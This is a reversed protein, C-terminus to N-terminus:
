KAMVLVSGDYSNALAVGVVRERLESTMESRSVGFVKGDKAVCYQGKKVSGECLVPVRGTLAIYQWGGQPLCNMRVAPDTSVIGAIIGDTFKTLEFETGNDTEEEIFQLVTGCPYDKDTHYKEALDAAKAYLATGQFNTAYVNAYYHSGDGINGHGSNIGGSTPNYVNQTNIGGNAYIRNTVTLASRCTVDGTLTSTGNVNLTTGVNTTATSKVDKGTITNSCTLNGSATVTALKSTGTSTINTSTTTNSVNANTFKNTTSTLTGTVTANTASLTSITGLHTASIDPISLVTHVTGDSHTVNKFTSQLITTNANFKNQNTFTNATALGSYTKNAETKNVVEQPYKDFVNTDVKTFREGSTKELIDGTNASIFEADKSLAKNQTKNTFYQAYAM